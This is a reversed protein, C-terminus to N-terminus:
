IAAGLVDEVGEPKTFNIRSYAEDSRITIGAAIAREIIEIQDLPNNAQEIKFSFKWPCQTQSAGYNKQFNYLLIENCLNEVRIMDSWMIDESVAKQVQLGARSGGSVPLESTNAQGLVTIAHSSDVYKVFSELSAAGGADTLKSTILEIADSTILAGGRNKSLATKVSEIEGDDAGKDVGHILGKLLSNLNSWDNIATHRMIELRVLVEADGTGSESDSEVLYVTGDQLTNIGTRLEHLQKLIQNNEFVRVVDNNNTDVIVQWPKFPVHARTESSSINETTISDLRYVNAGFIPARVVSNIVRSFATRSLALAEDARQQDSQDIATVQVDFASLATRRVRLFGKLRPNTRIATNALVFLKRPDPTREDLAEAVIKNFEAPDPYLANSIPSYSYM